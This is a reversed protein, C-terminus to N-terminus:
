LRGVAVEIVGEIGDFDELAKGIITGLKPDTAPRAYGAGGSTLMDGKSIKGRVKCPVRGQLAIAVVHIGQCESNMLYAPNTSVVGAVRRTEDQALTVEETGGFELVTGPAYPQDALYNEALDAYQAATATGIFYGTTIIDNNGADLRKNINWKNGTASYYFQANAGEVTIGGGDAAVQNAAGKALTINVDRIDVTNSNVSTMTGNVTLDGNIITDDGITIVGATTKARIFDTDVQNSLFNEAYVKRFKYFDSGLNVTSTSKPYLMPFAETGLSAATTADVYSLKSTSVSIDISSNSEILPNGASTSKFMLTQNTTLLSVGSDETGTIELSNLRGLSKLNSTVVANNLVTGSLNEAAVSITIDQTGSFLVGNINRPTQLRTATLANGSLSAGIFENATVTIAQLQGVIATNDVTLNSLQANHGTIDHAVISGTSDRAVIKGPSATESADVEWTRAIAGDFNNGKLYTGRILPQTTTAKISVNQTGDFVIGNITKGQILSSASAANGILNGKFNFGESLTIGNTLNLFGPIAPSGVTFAAKTIAGIVIDDVKIELAPRAIGSDDNIAIGAVKTEGFGKIAEPGVLVWKNNYVFLQNSDSNFWLSGPTGAPQDVGVDASAATKWEAGDYLKLSQTNTNYWLQGTIPRTPPNGNAFNELLWVFNENQSEGYGVYNRGVLGLSTSTDLVADDLVLLQSGNSRNIVYPM